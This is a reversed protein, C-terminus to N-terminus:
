KNEWRKALLKMHTWVQRKCIQIDSAKGELMADLEFTYLVQSSRAREITGYFKEFHEEFYVFWRAPVSQELIEMMTENMVNIEVISPDNMGVAKLIKLALTKQAENLEHNTLIAVPSDSQHHVHAKPEVAPEASNQPGGSVRGGAAPGKPEVMSEPSREFGEPVLVHSVGLVEKIYQHQAPSIMPPGSEVFTRHPHLAFETSNLRHFVPGVEQFAQKKPKLM